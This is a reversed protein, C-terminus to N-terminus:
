IASPTTTTGVALDDYDFSRTSVVAFAAFRKESNRVFLCYVTKRISNGQSKNVVGAVSNIRRRQFWQDGCGFTYTPWSHCERAPGCPTDTPAPNPQQWAILGGGRVAQGWILM